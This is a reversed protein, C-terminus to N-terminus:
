LPSRAFSVQPIGVVQAFNDYESSLRRGEKYLKGSM